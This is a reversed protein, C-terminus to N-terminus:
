PGFATRHLPLIELMARASRLDAAEFGETFRDYVPALIKRADDQRSQRVRLQALSMAARLEWFLAGQEKALELAKLLCREALISENGAQRLLLEGKIRLLEAITWRLGDRDYRGFADDLVSVAEALRGVFALGEALDGLFGSFHVALGTRRSMEYATSLSKSGRGFDGRQIRLAGELCPGLKTWFVSQDKTATDILLALSREAAAFDGTRLAIPYVAAGLAFCLSPKHETARAEEFSIQAQDQAQDVLGQLWLVRALMVRAQVRQDYLFWITHRQDPPAVYLNVVRELIDRAKPQNGGYHMAVGILRDGVLVDAPDGRIRALDSFREALRQAVRPEGNHLRYAYMGWLARLQSAADDLTETVALAKAFVVGCEEALGTTEFLAVALSVYMQLLLHASISLEPTLADLARQARERCEVMLSLSLWVPAYAATLAIGVEPDGGHSFAWDLAARVNDLERAARVTDNTAASALQQGSPALAVLDRFFEAHRRAAQATEGNKALKELAYVRITELLRWRASGDLSVLSKSVLNAIGDAVDLTANNPGSMVAAAAELTFGAPFVALCRLLRREEEPLLEYSWDLTARLTRHRSLATRRGSTLLALHDLLGAAVLEIGLTAARAAAFEIALPIGDLHRCIAAITTLNTANSSFDSGLEKARAIFLEPASHSLIHDPSHHGPGPVELAPVRYVCEGQVRMLERSTVVVIVHPCHRVVTEVLNAAADILHECNDLMLLLHKERIARALSEATVREGGLKLELVSAVASAMLDADSLSALEVLWVGHEFDALLGRISELALSTKGIGGPGTLTVVRYASVVDCVRRVADARGVLPTVAAPCNTLPLAPSDRRPEPALPPHNLDRQRVTWSGLLRYGRGQTTKLLHREEGLAKRIASIHVHLTSEGVIAGPWVRQMLHDKTVLESASRVLVELIEFARSGLPVLAGASRLERRGLDIEWREWAYVM